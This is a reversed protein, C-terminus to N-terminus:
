KEELFLKKIIFGALFEHLKNREIQNIKINYEGVEILKNSPKEFERQVSVLLMEDTISSFTVTSKHNLGFTLINSKITTFITNKLEIDSNIILYKINKCVEKLLENKKNLEETSDMLVLADFKVNKLNEISKSNINILIIENNNVKKQIIKKLHEYKPHEAIVGIFVM